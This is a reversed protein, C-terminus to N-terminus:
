LTASSIEGSRVARGLVALLEFVDNGPQGMRRLTRGPFVQEHRHM